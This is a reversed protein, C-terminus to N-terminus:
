RLNALAWARVKTNDSMPGAHTSVPVLPTAHARKRGRLVAQPLSLTALKSPLELKRPALYVSDTGTAQGIHRAGPIRMVSDSFALCEAVCSADTLLVPTAKSRRRPMGKKPPHQVTEHMVLPAGDKLAREVRM